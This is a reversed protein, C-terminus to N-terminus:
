DERMVIYTSWGTAVVEEISMDRFAVIEEFEQSFASESSLGIQGRDNAGAGFVVRSMTGDTKRVEAAVLVHGNGIAVDYPRAEGGDIFVEMSKIIDDQYGGGVSVRTGKVKRIGASDDTSEEGEEGQEGLVSLSGQSGPNAQGWIFLEDDESIAAAMYGGAAIKKVRTESFYPV